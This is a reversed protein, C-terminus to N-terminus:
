EYGIRLRSKISAEPLGIYKATLITHINKMEQISIWLYAILPEVGFSTFETLKCFESLFDDALKEVLWLEGTSKYHELGNKLSDGYATFQLKDITTEINNKLVSEFFMKDLTGDEPFLDWEIKDGPNWEKLRLTSLLNALDIRFTIFKKLYLIRSEDFVNKINELFFKEILMELRYLKQYQQYDSNVKAYIVKLSDPLLKNQEAATIFNQFDIIGLDSYKAERKSASLKIKLYTKLNNLDNRLLIAKVFKQEISLDYITRHRKLITETLAQKLSAPSDVKILTEFYDTSRLEDLVGRWDEREAMRNLKHGNLLSRELARVNAVASAYKEDESFQTINFDFLAM